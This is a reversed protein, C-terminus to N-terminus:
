RSLNDHEDDLILRENEHIRDVDNFIGAELSHRGRVGVFRHDNELGAGIHPDDDRVDIHRSCHVAEFKGSRDSTAPRRNFEDHNGTLVVQCIIIQGRATTEEALGEFNGTEGGSKVLHSRTQM